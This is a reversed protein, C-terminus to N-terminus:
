KTPKFKLKLTEPLQELCKDLGEGSLTWCIIARNPPSVPIPKELRVINELVYGYPGHFWKKTKASLEEETISDVVDVFGIICGSTDITSHLQNKTSLIDHETSFVIKNTVFISKIHFAIITPRTGSAKIECDM